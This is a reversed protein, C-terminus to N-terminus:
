GHAVVPSNLVIDISELKLQLRVNEAHLQKNGEAACALDATLGAIREGQVRITEDRVDAAAKKEDICARLGRRVTHLDVINRQLDEYTLGATFAYRVVSWLANLIRPLKSFRPM